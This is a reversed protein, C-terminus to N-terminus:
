QVYTPRWVTKGPSNSEVFVRIYDRVLGLRLRQLELDAIDKALQAVIDTAIDTMSEQKAEPKTPTPPVRDTQTAPVPEAKPKTKQVHSRSRKVRISRTL